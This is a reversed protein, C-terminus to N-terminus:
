EEAKLKEYWKPHHEKVFEEPLTGTRFMADLMPRHEPIMTALYVHVALGIVALFFGIDHLTHALEWTAPSFSDRFWLVLGTAYMWIVGIAAAWTWLKQGVNYKGFNPRKKRVYYDILEGIGRTLCSLSWCEPWIEWQRIRFLQLVGYPVIVTALGLASLRHIWRAIQLGLSYASYANGFLNSLPYGLATAIWGFWDGSILPLGTLLFAATFHILHKHVWIQAETFARVFKETVDSV